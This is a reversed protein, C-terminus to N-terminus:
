HKRPEDVRLIERTAEVDKAIAELLEEMGSFKVMGRIRDVFEVTVSHGYLDAQRDLVFSEVSRRQDGFTPNHGVSIAAPYRVGAVMDGDIPAASTIQLWGAYVGDEPLAISDPFYLNATPYGLEKGGRGAGRVVDGSVSFEWGLGWKARRVDGEALAKRIVSSSVITQDEALLELVRIEIDYDEGLKKLTETNGAAKYGFTFNEGVVVVKAKLKDKIISVFFDEPSLQSLNATFNMALMHDVGLNKVLNARQAVTGLLPPMKEPRLVALPHPNFTVLISPVGLVRARQTAASILTRHGRHVGDFVGITIVSADLDAPIDEIHHWIDVRSLKAM